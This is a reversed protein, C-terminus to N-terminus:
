ILNKTCIELKEELVHRSNKMFQKLIDVCIVKKPLNPKVFKVNLHNIEKMFQHLIDKCIINTPLPLMVNPLAVYNLKNYLAGIAREDVEGQFGSALKQYLIIGRVVDTISWRHVPGIYLKKDLMLEVQIDTLRYGSKDSGMLEEKIITKRYKPSKLEKLEQRLSRLQDKQRDTEAQLVKLQATLAKDVTNLISRADNPSKGNILKNPRDCTISPM